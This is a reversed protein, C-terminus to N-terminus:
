VPLVVVVLVIVYLYYYHVSHVVEYRLFLSCLLDQKVLMYQSLRTCTIPHTTSELLVPLVLTVIDQATLRACM